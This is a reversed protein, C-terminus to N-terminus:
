AAALSAVAGKVSTVDTVVGSYGAAALADFVGAIAPLPVAVVVIDAAAAADAISATVQWRGSQPARAAATRATARTTPDTDFGLVHHGAGALARLLSGGILGLGIVAIREAVNRV